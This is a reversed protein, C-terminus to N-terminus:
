EPGLLDRLQEVVVETIDPNEVAQTILREAMQSQAIGLDSEAVAQRLEDADFGEVTLAESLSGMTEAQVEESGLADAVASEVNDTADEVAENVNELASEVAENVKEEAGQVAENAKEELTDLADSTEQAAEEVDVEVEEQAAEIEVEAPTKVEAVPEPTDSIPQEQGGFTVWVIIGVIAIVSIIGLAKM